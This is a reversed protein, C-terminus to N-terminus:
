HDARRASLVACDQQRHIHRAALEQPFGATVDALTRSFGTLRVQVLKSVLAIENEMRKELAASRNLLARMLSCSSELDRLCAITAQEGVANRVVDCEKTMCEVVSLATNLMETSHILHRSIEHMQNFDRTTESALHLRSRELERTVHRWAWVADNFRHLICRLLLAQVSLPHAETTTLKHELVQKRILSETGAEIDFCFVTFVGPSPHFTVFGLKEWRYAPASPTEHLPVEVSHKVLFRFATTYCDDGKDALDRHDASFFGSADTYLKTGFTSPVRLPQLPEQRGDSAM